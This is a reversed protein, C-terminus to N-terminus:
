ENGALVMEIKAPEYDRLIDVIIQDGPKYNELLLIMDARSNIKKGDIATIVDGLSISGNRLRRTPRLGVREAPSNRFVDMILIGKMGMRSMIQPSALEVGLTPRNIKGYQILDPVVWTLVHSPISFGVGAYAGSPSYIATNVGILKGQSDLLPGGSNGPNIAADTQIVDKIPVKGVSEIERGLASIIGTTLSQDLGFPNGIAFVHQGVRLDDSSGLPIPRLAMDEADIKLVALDKEPAAGVLSAQYTKQDAFTVTARDAGQIVHYNTIIHGQGDWVFGSGSGRPIETINRSWYNRRVNSTTIYVVSPASREFLDITAQEAPTFRPSTAPTNKQQNVLVTSEIGENTSTTSPSEDSRNQWSTGIFIGLILLGIGFITRLINNIKM